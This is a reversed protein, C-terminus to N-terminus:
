PPSPWGRAPEGLGKESRVGISVSTESVSFGLAVPGMIDGPGCRFGVTCRPPGYTMLGVVALESVLPCNDGPEGGQVAPVVAVNELLSVGAENSPLLPLLNM